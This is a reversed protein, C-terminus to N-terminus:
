DQIQVARPEPKWLVAVSHDVSERAQRGVGPPDLFYFSCNQVRISGQHLDYVGLNSRSSPDPERDM